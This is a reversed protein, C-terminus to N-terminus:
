TGRRPRHRRLRRLSRPLPRCRAVRRRSRQVSARRRWGDSRRQSRWVVATAAQELQTAGELVHLLGVKAKQLDDGLRSM